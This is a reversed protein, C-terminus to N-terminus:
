VAPASPAPEPLEAATAGAQSPHIVNAKAWAPFDYGDDQALAEALHKRTIKGALFAVIAARAFDDARKRHQAEAHQQAGGMAAPRGMAPGPAVPLPPPGSPMASNAASTYM